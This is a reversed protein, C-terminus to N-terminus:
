PKKVLAECQDPTLDRCPDPKAAPPPPPPPEVLRYDITGTHNVTGDVHITGNQPVVRAPRAPAVAAPAAPQSTAAPVIVPASGCKSCSFGGAIWYGLLILLAPVGFISFWMCGKLAKKWDPNILRDRVPYTGPHGGITMPLDMNIAAPDDNPICAGVPATSAAPTPQRGDLVDRADLERQLEDILRTMADVARPNVPTARLAGALAQRAERLDTEIEQRNRM